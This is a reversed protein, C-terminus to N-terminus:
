GQRRYHKKSMFFENMTQGKHVVRQPQLHLALHDLLGQVGATNTAAWDVNLQAMQGEQAPHYATPVLQEETMQIAVRRATGSLGSILRAAMSYNSSLNVSLRWVRLEDKYPRKQNRRVHLM